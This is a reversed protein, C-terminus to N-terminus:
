MNLFIIKEHLFRAETMLKSSDECIAAEFFFQGNSSVESGNSLTLKTADM